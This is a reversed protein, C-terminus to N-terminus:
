RSFQPAPGSNQQVSHLNQCSSMAHEQATPHLTGPTCCGPFCHAYPLLSVLLSLEVERSVVVGRGGRLEARPMESGVLNAVERGGGFNDFKTM